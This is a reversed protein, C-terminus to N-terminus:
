AAGSPGMLLTLRVVARDVTSGEGPGGVELKVHSCAAALPQVVAQHAVPVIGFDGSKFLVTFLM